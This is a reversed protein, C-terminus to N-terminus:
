VGTERGPSKVQSCWGELTHMLQGANIVMHEAAYLDLEPRGLPLNSLGERPLGVIHEVDRCLEERDFLNCDLGLSDSIATSVKCIHMIADAKRTSATRRESQRRRAALDIRNAGLLWRVQGEEGWLGVLLPCPYEGDVNRRVMQLGAVNFVAVTGDLHMGAVGCRVVNEGAAAAVKPTM